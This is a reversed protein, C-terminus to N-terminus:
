CVPSASFHTVFTAGLASGSFGFRVSFTLRGTHLLRQRVATQIKLASLSAFSELEALLISYVADSSASPTQIPTPTPARSEEQNSSRITEDTFYVRAAATSAREVVAGSGLEALHINPRTRPRQAAAVTGRRRGIGRNSSLVSNSSLIASADSFSRSYVSSASSPLERRRRVMGDRSKSGSSSRPPRGRGHERLGGGGDRSSLSSSMSPPSAHGHLIAGGRTWNEPKPAILM